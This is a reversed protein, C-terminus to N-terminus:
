APHTGAEAADQGGTQVLEPHASLFVRFIAAWATEKQEQTLREAQLIQGDRTAMIM